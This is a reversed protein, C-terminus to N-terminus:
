EPRGLMEDVKAALIFDNPTLGDAAHTRLHVVVRGWGLELDPHHGESEAIPTLRDVFHKAELFDSFRLERVLEDGGEGRRLSWAPVRPLLAAIDDADLPPTGGECPVCHQVSLPQNAPEDTSM